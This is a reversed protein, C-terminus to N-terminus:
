YKDDRSEELIDDCGVVLENVGVSGNSICDSVRSRLAFLAPVIARCFYIHLYGPSM